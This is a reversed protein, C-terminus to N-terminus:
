VTIVDLKAVGLATSLETLVDAVPNVLTQLTSGAFLLGVLESRANLVGSGSDGPNSFPGVNDKTAKVLIQGAFYADRGPGYNIVATGGLGTVIGETFGTTRGVKFVRSDGKVGGTARDPRFSATGRIGGGYTLRDLDSQSSRHAPLILRALAADVSNVPIAGPPPPMFQLPVVAAVEGIKLLNELDVLAPMALLEVATLDLTGPQVVSNGLVAKVGTADSSRGIVHNNTVLYPVKKAKPDRVFFGLTGVSLMGPYNFPNTIGIGTRLAHFYKQSDLVPPPGGYVGQYTAPVSLDALPRFESGSEVIDVDVKPLHAGGVTQAFVDRFPMIGAAEMESSTLKKRVYGTVTFDTAETIPGGEKSSVAVAQLNSGSACLMGVGHTKVYNLADKFQM